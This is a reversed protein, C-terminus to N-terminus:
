LTRANGIRSHLVRRELATRSPDEPTGLSPAVLGALTTDLLYSSLM